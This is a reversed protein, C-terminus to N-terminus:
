LQPSTVYKWQYKGTAMKLTSCIHCIKANTNEQQWKLLQFNSIHRIKANANKNQFSSSIHRIQLRAIVSWYLRRAAALGNTLHTVFACRESEASNRQQSDKMNQPSMNKQIFFLITQKIKGISNRAMSKKVIVDWFTPPRTCFFLCLWFLQMAVAPHLLPLSDISPIPSAGALLQPLWLNVLGLLDGGGVTSCHVVLGWYIKM